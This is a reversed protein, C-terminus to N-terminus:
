SGRSLLGVLAQKQAEALPAPLSCHRHALSATISDGNRRGYSPLVAECQASPMPILDIVPARMCGHLWALHVLLAHVACEPITVGNTSMGEPRLPEAETLIRPVDATCRPHGSTAPPVPDRWECDRPMLPGAGRSEVVVRSSTGTHVWCSTRPETLQSPHSPHPAMPVFDVGTVGSSPPDSLHMVRPRGVPHTHNQANCAANSAKDQQPMRALM